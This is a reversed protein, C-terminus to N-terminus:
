IFNFLIIKKTAENKKNVYYEKSVKIKTNEAFVYDTGEFRFLLRLTLNAEPKSSRYLFNVTAM